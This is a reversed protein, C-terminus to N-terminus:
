RALKRETGNRNALAHEAVSESLREYTFAGVPVDVVEEEVLSASPPEEEAGGDGDDDDDDDDDDWDDDDDDDYDDDDDDDSGGTKSSLESKGPDPDAQELYRVLLDGLQPDRAAIAREIDVLTLVM